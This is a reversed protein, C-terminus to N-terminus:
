SLVKQAMTNGSKRGYYRKTLPKLLGLSSLPVSPTQTKRLMAQFMLDHRKKRQSRSRPILSRTKRRVPPKNLILKSPTRHTSVKKDALQVRLKRGLLELGDREISELARKADDKIAFSVYGVGKSTGTGHETVVFASRVPAIDSFLTQLDTSTAPYPLNSVFLTSSRLTANAMSASTNLRTFMGMPVQRNTSTTANSESAWHWAAKGKQTPCETGSERKRTISSLRRQM